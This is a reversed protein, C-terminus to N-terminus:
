EVGKVYAHLAEEIQLKYSDISEDPVNIAKLVSTTTIWNEGVTPPNISNFNITGISAPYYGSPTHFLKSPISKVNEGINVVVDKYGEPPSWGPGLNSITYQGAREFPYSLDGSNTEISLVCNIANYNLTKLKLVSAFAATGIVQVSEPITINEIASCVFFTFNKIEKTGEPIVIDIVKENNIYFCNSYCWPMSFRGGVIEVGLWANLNEMEVYTLKRDDNFASGGIYKLSKPLYFSKLESCRALANAGITELNSFIPLTTINSDALAYDGLEVINEPNEFVIEEGAFDAFCGEPIQSIGKPVFIYTLSCGNFSHRGLTHLKSNKLFDVKTLSSCLGFPQLNLVEVNSGIIVEELTEDQRFAASGIEKVPLDNYYNPILIKNSTCEGRGKVIYYSEDDSLVYNLNSAYETSIKAYIKIQTDVRQKISDLTAAEMWVGDDFYWGDFNHYDISPPNPMAFEENLVGTYYVDNNVYFTVMQTEAQPVFKAYVNKNSFEVAATINDVNAEEMWINNDYYWGDFVYNEMTPNQPLTFNDEELFNFTSYLNDNVYFSIIKCSQFFKAYVVIDSDIKESLFYKTTFENNWINQDFYWGDFTFNQKLPAPPFELEEGGNTNLTYFVSNDVKFTITCKNEMNSILLITLVLIIITAFLGITGIKKM